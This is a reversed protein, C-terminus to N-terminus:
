KFRQYTSYSTNSSTEVNSIIKNFLQYIHFTLQFSNYQQIYHIAKSDCGIEKLANEIEDSEKKLVEKGMMYVIALRLKDENLKDQDKIMELIM